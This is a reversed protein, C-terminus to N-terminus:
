DMCALALINYNDLVERLNTSLDDLLGVLASPSDLTGFSSFSGLVAASNVDIIHASIYKESQWVDRASVVCVYQLGFQKGLEAIQDDDVEGSREYSHERSVAALFDGSREIPLYRGSNILDSMLRNSAIENVPDSGTMYIAVRPKQQASMELSLIIYCFLLVKKM